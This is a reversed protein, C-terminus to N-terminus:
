GAISSGAVESHAEVTRDSSWTRDGMDTEIELDMRNFLRRASVVASDTGQCELNEKDLDAPWLFKQHDRKRELRHEVLKKALWSATAASIGLSSGLLSVTSYYM